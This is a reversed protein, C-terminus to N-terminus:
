VGEGEEKKRDYEWPLSIIPLTLPCLLSPSAKSKLVPEKLQTKTKPSGWGWGWGLLGDEM